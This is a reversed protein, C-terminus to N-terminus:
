RWRLWVRDSADEEAKGAKQKDKKVVDMFSMQQRRRKRRGPLETSFMKVIYGSGRRQM